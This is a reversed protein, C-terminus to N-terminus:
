VDKLGGRYQAEQDPDEPWTPQSMTAGREKERLQTLRTDM